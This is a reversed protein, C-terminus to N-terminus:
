RSKKATTEPEDEVMAPRTTKGGFAAIEGYAALPMNESDDRTDNFFEELCIAKLPIGNAAAREKIMEFGINEWNRKYWIVKRLVKPTSEVDKIYKKLLDLGLKLGVDDYVFCLSNIFTMGDSDVCFLRRYKNIKQAYSTVCSVLDPQIIIRPFVATEREYEHAVVLGSGLVSNEDMYLNGYCISGRVLFGNQLFITAQLISVLASLEYLKMGLNKKDDCELALVFNDSFYSFKISSRSLLQKDKPNIEEILKSLLNHITCISSVCKQETEKNLLNASTGLIDIFAIVHPTSQPITREKYVINADTKNQQIILPASARGLLYDVSCNLYDAIKIITDISPKSRGKKWDSINGPSIGTAATLEKSVVNFDSLRDFFMNKDYM